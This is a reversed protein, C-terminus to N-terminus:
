TLEKLTVPAGVKGHKSELTRMSRYVILNSSVLDGKTGVFLLSGRPIIAPFEMRHLDYQPGNGDYRPTNGFHNRLSELSRYSHLGAHVAVCDNRYEDKCMNARYEEGMKYETSRYPAMFFRDSWQMYVDLAKWVQIPRRVLKGASKMPNTHITQDIYLCM